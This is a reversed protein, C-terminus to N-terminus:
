EDGCREEARDHGPEEAQDVLGAIEHERQRRALTVLTTEIVDLRQNTIDLRQNTLGLREDVVDLRQEVRRNTERQEARFDRLESRIDKLVEITIDSDAM